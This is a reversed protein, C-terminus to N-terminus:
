NLRMHCKIIPLLFSRSHKELMTPMIVGGCKYGDAKVGKPATGRNELNVIRNLQGYLDSLKLYFAIVAGSQNRATVGTVALPRGGSAIRVTTCLLRTRLKNIVGVM